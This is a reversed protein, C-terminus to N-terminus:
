FCFSMVKLVAFLLSIMRQTKSLKTGGVVKDNLYSLTQLYNGELYNVGGWGERIKSVHIWVHLM